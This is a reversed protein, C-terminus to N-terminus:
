GTEAASIRTPIGRSAPATKPRAPRRVGRTARVTVHSMNVDAAILAAAVLAAAIVDAAILALQRRDNSRVQIGDAGTIRDGHGVAIVPVSLQDPGVGRVDADVGDAGVEGADRLPESGALHLEDASSGVEIPGHHDPAYLAARRRSGRTRVAVPQLITAATRRDDLLGDAEVRRVESCCTGRIRQVVSWTEIQRAEAANLRENTASAATPPM